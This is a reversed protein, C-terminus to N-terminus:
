KLKITAPRIIRSGMKYGNKLVEKVKGQGKEKGREIVEHILEDFDDGESVEIKEVGNDSLVKELQNKIHLIGIMWNSQADEEPVHKIALEFNDIVPLLDFVYGELCYRKFDENEKLSRKKYNELDAVARRWGNLADKMELIEKAKLIVERKENEFGDKQSLKESAEDISFWGFDQHEKSLEVEDDGSYYTLYRLGRKEENFNKSEKSFEATGIIEGIEVKLGTEEQIERKIAEELTEGKELHGGPLDWKGPNLSKKSRKLLLIKGDDRLVVGKVTLISKAFKIEKKKM